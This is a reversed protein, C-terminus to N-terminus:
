NTANASKYVYTNKYTGQAKTVLKEIKGEITTLHSFGTKKEQLKGKIDESISYEGVVMSEIKQSVGIVSKFGNATTKIFDKRNKWEVGDAFM